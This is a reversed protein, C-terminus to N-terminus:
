FSSNLLGKSGSIEGEKPLLGACSEDSQTWLPCYYSLKIEESPWLSVPCLRKRLGGSFCEEELVAWEVAPVEVQAPIRGEGM